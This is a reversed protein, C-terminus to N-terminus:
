PLGNGFWSRVMGVTGFPRLCVRHFVGAHAWPYVRVSEHLRDVGTASIEAGSDRFHGM